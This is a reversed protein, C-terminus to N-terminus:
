SAAGIEPRTAQDLSDYFAASARGAALHLIVSVAQDPRVRLDSAVRSALSFSEESLIACTTRTAAKDGSRDRRDGGGNIIRSPCSDLDLDELLDPAHALTHLLWDAATGWFTLGFNRCIESLVAERAQIARFSVHRPHFRRDAPDIEPGTM